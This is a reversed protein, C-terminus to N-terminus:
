GTRCEFALKMAEAFTLAQRARCALRWGDDLRSASTGVDDPASTRRRLRDPRIM